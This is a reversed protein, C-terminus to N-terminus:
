GTPNGAPRSNRPHSHTWPSLLSYTVLTALTGLIFTAVGIQGRATAICQLVLSVQEFLFMNCDTMEGEMLVTSHMEGNLDGNHVM